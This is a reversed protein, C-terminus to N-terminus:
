KAKIVGSKIEVEDAIIYINEPKNTILKVNGQFLGSFDEYIKARDCEIYIYREGEQVYINVNGYLTATHSTIIILNAVSTSKINATYVIKANKRLEVEKKYVAEDAYGEIIKNDLVLKAKIDGYLFYSKNKEVAKNCRIELNKAKAIVNGEIILTSNERNYNIFNGKVVLAALTNIFFLFAKM